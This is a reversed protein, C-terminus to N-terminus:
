NIPRFAVNKEYFFLPNIRKIVEFKANEKCPSINSTNSDKPPQEDM